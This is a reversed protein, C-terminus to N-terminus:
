ELRNVGAQQTTLDVGGGAYADGDVHDDQFKSFFTSFMSCCTLVEGKQFRNFITIKDGDEGFDGLGERPGSVFNGYGFIAFLYTEVSFEGSLHVM